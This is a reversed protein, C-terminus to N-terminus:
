APMSAAFRAAERELDAPSPPDGASQPWFRLSMAASMGSTIMRLVAHYLAGKRAQERVWRAAAAPSARYAPLMAPYRRNMYATLAARLAVADQPVARTAAKRRAKEKRWTVDALVRARDYDDIM